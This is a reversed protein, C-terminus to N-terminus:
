LCSVLHVFLLDAERWVQYFRELLGEVPLEQADVTALVEYAVQILVTKLKM